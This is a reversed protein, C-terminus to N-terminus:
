RKKAVFGISGAVTFRIADLDPGRRGVLRAMSVRGGVGAARIFELVRGVLRFCKRFPLPWGMFIDDFFAHLISTGPWLREVEFGASELVSRTGLHTLHCYSSDHFPELFAVVGFFRAGPKLVRSLEATAEFPNRLHELVATSVAGDFVADSFPLRHADGVVTGGTRIDIGVYGGGLSEVLRRHISRGCGFDLIRSGEQTVEGIAAALHGPLESVDPRIAARDVRLRASVVSADQADVPMQAM